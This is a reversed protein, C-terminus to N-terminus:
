YVSVWKRDFSGNIIIFIMKRKMFPSTNFFNFSEACIHWRIESKENGEASWLLWDANTIWHSICKYVNGRERGWEGRSKAAVECAIWWYFDFAFLIKQCSKNWKIKKKRKKINAYIQLLKIPVQKNQVWYERTYKEWRAATRWWRWRDHECCGHIYNVERRQRSHSLFFFFGSCFFREYQLVRFIKIANRIIYTRVYHQLSPVWAQVGGTPPLKLACLTCIVSEVSTGWM